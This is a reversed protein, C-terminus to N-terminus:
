MRRLCKLFINFKNSNYITNMKFKLRYYITIRVEILEYLKLFLVNYHLLPMNYSNILYYMAFHDFCKKDLLATIVIEIKM